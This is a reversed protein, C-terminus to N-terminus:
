VTATGHLGQLGRLAEIMGLHRAAHVAHGLITDRVSRDDDHAVEIPFDEPGIAEVARDCAEFARRVYALLEDKEPMPLMASAEDGMEMGTQDWGLLEPTFGM